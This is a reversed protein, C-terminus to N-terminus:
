NELKLTTNGITIIDGVYLQQGTSQVEIGNVYTNNKSKKWKRTKDNWQGDRIYLGKQELEELTAQQRSIYNSLTEQIVLDNKYLNSTRGLTIHKKQNFFRSLSYVKGVEEGNLIRIKLSRVKSATLVKSQVLGM